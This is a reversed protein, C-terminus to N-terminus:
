QCRLDYVLSRSDPLWEVDAEVLDRSPTRRTLTRVASGDLRPVKLAYGGRIAALQAVPKRNPSLV